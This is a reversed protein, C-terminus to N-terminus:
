VFKVKLVGVRVYNIPSYETISSLLMEMFNSIEMAYSQTLLDGFKLDVDDDKGPFPTYDYVEGWREGAWEEDVVITGYLTLNEAISSYSIHEITINKFWPFKRKMVKNIIKEVEVYDQKPKKWFERLVRRIHEQLNM